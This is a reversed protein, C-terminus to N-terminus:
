DSGAHAVFWFGNHGDLADDYSVIARQVRSVDFKAGTRIDDHTVIFGAVNRKSEFFGDSM